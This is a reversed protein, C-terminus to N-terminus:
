ELSGRNSQRWRHHSSRVTATWPRPLGIEIQSAKAQEPPATFAWNLERMGFLMYEPATVMLTDNCVTLRM